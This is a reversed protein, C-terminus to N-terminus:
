IELLDELEQLSQIHYDASLAQNRYAVLPVGAAKTALEDLQSDGVYIAQHPQIDFYDLIKLLADPHPKPRKVDSATVVLDFYGNLQFEDLLRMLTDTRNTAIATRLKPRIKKLLALLHPEVRLLSLYWAYDMTKRYSMAAKLSKADSFLLALSEDLTHMHVYTFQAETMRPRGFHELLHNYYARNALETDLLVGDCDFAVVKIPKM